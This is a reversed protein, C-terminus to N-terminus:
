PNHGWGFVQGILQGLSAGGGVDPDNYVGYLGDAYQLNNSGLSTPLADSQVLGFISPTSTNPSHINLGFSEPTSTAGQSSFSVGDFYFPIGYISFFRNYYVTTSVYRLGAISHGGITLNVPPGSGVANYVGETPDSPTADVVTSDYSFSGSVPAGVYVWSPQPTFGYIDTVTGSFSVSIIPAAPCYAGQLLACM